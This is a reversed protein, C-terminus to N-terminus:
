GTRDLTRFDMVKMITSSRPSTLMLFEAESEGLNHELKTLKNKLSRMGDKFTKLERKFNVSQANVEAIRAAIEEKTM